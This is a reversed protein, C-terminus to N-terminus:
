HGKNFWNAALSIIPQILTKIKELSLNRSLFIIIILWVGVAFWPNNVLITVITILFLLVMGVLILIYKALNSTIANLKIIDLSNLQEWINPPSGLELVTKDKNPPKVEVKNEPTEKIVVEDNEDSIKM